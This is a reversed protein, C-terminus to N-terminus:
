AAGWVKMSEPFSAWARSVRETGFRALVEDRGAALAAMGESDWKVGLEEAAYYAASVPKFERACLHTIALAAGYGPQASLRYADTLRVGAGKGLARRFRRPARPAVLDVLERAAVMIAADFENGRALAEKEVQEAKEASREGDYFSGPYLRALNEAKGLIELGKIQGFKKAIALIEM